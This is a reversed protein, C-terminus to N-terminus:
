SFTFPNTQILDEKEMDLVRLIEDIIDLNTKSSTFGRSSRYTLHKKIAETTMGDINIASALKGITNIEDNFKFHYYRKDSLNLRKFELMAKKLSNYLEEENKSKELIRETRKRLNM